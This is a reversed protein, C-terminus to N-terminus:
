AGTRELAPIAGLREYAARAAAADGLLERCRAEEFTCGLAAFGAAARALAAEDGAMGRARGVQALIRPMEDIGPLALLRGLAEDLEDWRELMAAAEARIALATPGVRYSPHEGLDVHRVRDLALEAEGRGLLAQGVLLQFAVKHANGLRQELEEAQEQDGRLLHVAAAVGSARSPPRSRGGVRRYLAVARESAEMAEDWRDWAFYAEAVDLVPRAQWHVEDAGPVDAAEGALVAGAYDGVIMRTQAAQSCADMREERRGDAVALELRRDALARAERYRGLGLLV